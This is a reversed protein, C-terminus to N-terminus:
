LHSPFVCCLGQRGPTESVPAPEGAPLIQTGADRGPSKPDTRMWTGDGPLLCLRQARKGSCVRPLLVSEGCLVEELQSEQSSLHMDWQAFMKPIDSPM